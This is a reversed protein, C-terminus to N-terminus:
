FNPFIIGILYAFPLTVILIFIFAGLGIGMISIFFHVVSIPAIIIKWLFHKSFSREKEFSKKNFIKNKINKELWVFISNMLYAYSYVIVYFIGGVLCLVIYATISDDFFQNLYDSIQLFLNM